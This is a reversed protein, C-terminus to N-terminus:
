CIRRTEENDRGVKAVPTGAEAVLVYVRSALAASDMLGDLVQVSLYTQTHAPM